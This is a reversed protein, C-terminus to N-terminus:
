DDNAGWKRLKVRFLVEELEEVYIEVSQWGDDFKIKNGNSSVKIDSYERELNCLDKM